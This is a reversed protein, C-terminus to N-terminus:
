KVKGKNEFLNILKYILTVQYDNFEWRVNVNNDAWEKLSNNKEQSMAAWDAVMEAIYVDHMAVANTIQPQNSANRDEALKMDKKDPDWYEPHHPNNTIHHLTAQKTQEEMHVPYIFGLGKDKCRDHETLWIYPTKEPPIFKSEDHKIVNVYVSILDSYSAAIIKANQIVRDIHKNTRELFNNEM